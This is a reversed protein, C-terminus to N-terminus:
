LSAVYQCINSSVLNFSSGTAAGGFCVANDNSGAGDGDYKIIGLPGDSDGSSCINGTCIGFYKGHYFYISSQTNGTESRTDQAIITNNMIRVNIYGDGLTAGTDGIVGYSSVFIGRTKTIKQNISCGMVTAAGYKTGQWGNSDLASVLLSRDQFYPECLHIVSNEWKNTPNQDATYFSTSADEHRNLEIECDLLRAGTFVRVVPGEGNLKIVTAGPVGVLSVGTLLNLTGTINYTFPGLQIIGGGQAAMSRVAQVLPERPSLEIRYGETKEYTKKRHFKSYTPVFKM